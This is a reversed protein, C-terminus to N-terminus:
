YSIKKNHILSSFLPAGSNQSSHVKNKPWNNKLYNITETVTHAYKEITQDLAIM